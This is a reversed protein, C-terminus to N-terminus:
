VAASISEVRWQDEPTWWFRLVDGGVSTSLINMSSDASVAVGQLAGAPAYPLDNFHRSIQAVLWRDNGYREKMGPAWWYAVIQGDLDLGAVNLGGWSTVWSTVSSAILRPGGFLDTLNSKAWKGGFSPVWWTVSLSGSADTGALNIGQWPTLFVSLGGTLPPAGTISSLNNATWRSMRGAIWVAQINGDGDLGVINLADWATVFSILGGKFDPTSKGDPALDSASIDRAIWAYDDGIRGGSQKYLLLHGDPGLGALHVTGGRSVFVTVEHAMRLTSGLEDTLNRVTWDGPAREKYLLLGDDSVAAVYALGDKLDTWTAASGSPVASGTEGALDVVAWGGGDRESFVIPRDESNRTVVRLLGDVDTGRLDAGADATVTVTPGTGPIKVAYSIEGSSQAALFRGDAAADMMLISGGDDRLVIQGGDSVEWSGTHTVNEVGANYSATELIRYSGDVDLDLIDWGVDIVPRNQNTGTNLMGINRYVGAAQWATITRDPKVLLGAFAGDDSDFEVIGALDGSPGAQIWTGDSLKVRGSENWTDIATTTIRFQGNGFEKTIRVEQEGIEVSGYLVRGMGFEGAGQELGYLSWTGSLEEISFREPTEVLVASLSLQLAVGDVDWRYHAGGGGIPFGQLSGFFTSDEDLVTLTGPLDIEEEDATWRGDELLQFNRFDSRHEAFQPGGSSAGVTQFSGYSLDTLVGDEYWGVIASPPVDFGSAQHYAIMAPGSFHLTSLALRPELAEFHCPREM